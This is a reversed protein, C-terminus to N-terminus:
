NVRNRKISQDERDAMSTQTDTERQRERDRRDREQERSRERGGLGIMMTKITMTMMMMMVQLFIFEINNGKLGKFTDQEIVRIQNHQLWLRNLKRLGKFANPALCFLFKNLSIYQLLVQIILHPPVM